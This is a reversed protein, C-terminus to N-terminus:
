TQARRPSTALWGGTAAGAVSTALTLAAVPRRHRVLNTAAVIADAADAAACVGMARRWATSGPPSAVVAAVLALDRVGLLRGVAARQRPDGILRAGLRPAVLLGVGAGLRLATYARGIM